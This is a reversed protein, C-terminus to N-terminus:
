KLVGDKKLQQELCSVATEEPTCSLLYVPFQEMLEILHLMALERERLNWTDFVLQSMMKPLAESPRLQRIVNVNGQELLVVAGLRHIKESIVPESGDIPYGYTKGQCILTRDNCIIKASRHRQWLKAQTTKGTGSAATFLIGVKDVAIQSAHFFLVGQKQFIMRIPLLRLINGLSLARESLMDTNLYCVIHNQMEDYVVVSLDGKWGGKGICLYGNKWTYYKMLLDEGLLTESPKPSKGFNMNIEVIIDANKKLPNLFPHLSNEIKLEIPSIFHFGVNGITLEYEM